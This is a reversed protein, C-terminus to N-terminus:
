GGNGGNSKRRARNRADRKADRIVQSNPTPAQQRNGARQVASREFTQAMPNFRRPM